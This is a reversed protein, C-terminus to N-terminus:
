KSKSANFVVKFQAAYEDCIRLICRMASASPALLVLDDAYVLAGVFFSGIHCGVGATNLNNLLPDFYVCFLVPSLIAGQRIGNLV